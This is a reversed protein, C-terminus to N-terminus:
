GSASAGETPSSSSSSSPTIGLQQDIAELQYPYEELLANVQSFETTLQQQQATMQSQFDSITNTLDTQEQQNETLDLNLLGNTPDTLNALDNSFNNAFGSQSSNQFFNLVDTPDSALANGLQTTDVSLTGDDNMTIGLATLNSYQNDSGTSYTVDALLSSQLTRISNDGALPGESNTSSNVTFQTNIDGIVQNYASVFSSIANAAQTVDPGVTIQAQIGPYAGALNLTVGPIAGTVTNSTSSFPVGDVSFSANTGGIPPNFNLTTTNNLVSLAGSTGTSQSYLALRSGSADNLVTATVGWNQSNIYSALTNLTDNSGATIPIDETTGATTGGSGGIQIQLDGTTQGSPLISTDASALAETYLTGQTALTSVVITHTGAVATTDASGTVITSQSSTVTQAALPGLVDSLSNVATSLSGLDNNMSTLLGSQTQLTSQEQQYVQLENQEPTMAETVLSSVDIGQGNLLTAPNLSIGM